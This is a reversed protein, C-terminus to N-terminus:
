RDFNVHLIWVFLLYNFALAFLSVHLGVVLGGLVELVPRTRQVLYYARTVHGDKVEAESLSGDLRADEEHEVARKVENWSYM